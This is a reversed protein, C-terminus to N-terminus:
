VNAGPNIRTGLHADMDLRLDSPTEDIGGRLKKIRDIGQSVKGRQSAYLLATEESIDGEEYAKLVSQDFTCWGLHSGAEIIDKFSRGDEEGKEIAERTRLNSGLIEILLQRGGSEKPALRQSVIYRVTDALRFRVNREEEKEFM